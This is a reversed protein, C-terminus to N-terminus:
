GGEGKHCIQGAEAEDLDSISFESPGPWTERLLWKEKTGGNARLWPPDLASKLQRSRGGEKATEPLTVSQIQLSHECLTSLLTPSLTLLQM